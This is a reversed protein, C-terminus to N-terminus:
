CMTPRFQYRFGDYSVMVKQGKTVNRHTQINEQTFM